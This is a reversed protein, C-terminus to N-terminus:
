TKSSKFSLLKMRFKSGLELLIPLKLDQTFKIDLSLLNWFGRPHIATREQTFVNFFEIRRGDQSGM